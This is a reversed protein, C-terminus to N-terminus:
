GRVPLKLWFVSGGGANNRHGMQGGMRRTLGIHSRWGSDPAKSAPASRASFREYEKYCFIANSRQTHRHRHRSSRDHPHREDGKVSAVRDIGRPTYKVANSLLNLLILRLQIDDTVFQTPHAPHSHSGRRSDGRRPALHSSRLASRSRPEACRDAASTSADTGLAEIRADDLVVDVVDRMHEAPM